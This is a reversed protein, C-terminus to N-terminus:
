HVSKLLAGLDLPKSLQGSVGEELGGLTHKRTEHGTLLIVPLTKISRRVWRLLEFGDMELLWVDASVFDFRYGSMLSDLAEIGSLVMGVEFGDQVLVVRIRMVRVMEPQDDM